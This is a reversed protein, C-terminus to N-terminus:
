WAEYLIERQRPASPSPEYLIEAESKDHGAPSAVYAVTGQKHMTAVRPQEYTDMGQQLGEPITEYLDQSTNRGPTAQASALPSSVFPRTAPQEYLIQAGPRHGNAPSVQYGGLLEAETHVHTNVQSNAHTAPKSGPDQVTEYTDEGAVSSLPKIESARPHAQNEAIRHGGGSPGIPQEYM